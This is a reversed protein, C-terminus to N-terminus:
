RLWAYNPVDIDYATSTSDDRHGQALLGVGYAVAAFGLAGAICQLRANWSSPLWAAFPSIPGSDSAPKQEGANSEPDLTSKGRSREPDLLYVLSAGLILGGSFSLSRTEM